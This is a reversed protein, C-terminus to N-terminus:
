DEIPVIEVIPEGARALSGVTTLLVRNVVGRAPASLVARTLRTELSPLRVLVEALEAEAQALQELSQATMRSRESVMRDDIELVAAQASGLLARAESLRGEAEAVRGLLGILTTRPEVGDEVLRRMVGLEDKILSLNEEATEVRTQAEVVSQERQRRQRLLIGIEDTLATRRAEYLAQESAILASTKPNTEILPAFPQDAIEAKLRTIRLELAIVRAQAQGLEGEIQTDDLTVLPDNAEVIDGEAVHIAAIVGPESPQVVQVEGSPVIRGDTRTVRDLETVAAWSVSAVLLLLIALLLLSSRLPNGGSIERALAQASKTSVSM